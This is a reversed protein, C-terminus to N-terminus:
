SKNSISQIIDKLSLHRHHDVVKYGPSPLLVSSLDFINKRMNVVKQKRMHKLIIIRDGLNKKHQHSYLINTIHNHYSRKRNLLDCVKGTQQIIVDM